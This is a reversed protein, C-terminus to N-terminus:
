FNSTIALATARAAYLTFSAVAFPLSASCILWLTALYLIGLDTPFSYAYSSNSTEQVLHMLSLLFHMPVVHPMTRWLAGHVSALALLNGTCMPHPVTNYPFADSWTPHVRGLEAGFYTADVGIRAAALASLGFGLTVACVSAAGPATAAYLALLQFYSLAKFLVANRKFAHFDVSDGRGIAYERYTFLYIGHHVFSTLFFFNERSLCAYLILLGYANTRGLNREVFQEYRTAALVFAAGARSLLSQPKKTVNFLKRAVRDYLITLFALLAGLPALFKPCVLYHLKLTCRSLENRQETDEIRHVTRNFDFGVAQGKALVYAEQALPFVTRVQTNANLGVICRFVACFPFFFWPGDIHDSYFVKDSDEQDATSSVYVEDMITLPCVISSPFVSKFMNLMTTSKSVASVMRKVASPLETVWWHTTRDRKPKQFDIWMQIGDLKESDRGEFAASLVHSREVFM